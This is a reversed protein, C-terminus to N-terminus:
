RVRREGLHLIVRLIVRGAVLLVPGLAQLEQPHRRRRRGGRRRGGRRAGPPELIHEPIQGDRVFRGAPNPTKAVRRQLSEGIFLRVHKEVTYEPTYKRRAVRIEIAGDGGDLLPELYRRFRCTLIEPSVIKGCSEEPQDNHTPTCHLKRLAASPTRPFM